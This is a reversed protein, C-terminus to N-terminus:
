LKNVNLINILWKCGASQPFVHVFVFQRQGERHKVRVRSVGQGM